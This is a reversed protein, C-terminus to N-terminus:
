EAALWSLAPVNRMVTWVVLLGFTIQVPLRRRELGQYAVVIRTRWREPGACVALAFACAPLVLVTYFLNLDIAREVHGGLLALTARTAGCFACEYHTLGRLPCAVTLGLQAIVLWGAITLLCLAALRPLSHVAATSPKDFPRRPVVPKM